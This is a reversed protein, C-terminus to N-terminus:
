ELFCTFYQLIFDDGDDTITNLTRTLSAIQAVIAKVDDDTLTLTLGVLLSHSVSPNRALRQERNLLSSLLTCDKAHQEGISTLHLLPGCDLLIQLRALRQVVTMTESDVPAVARTHNRGLINIDDHHSRLTRTGRETRHEALATAQVTRIGDILISRALSLILRQSETNTDTGTVQKLGSELALSGAVQSTLASTQHTSDLAQQQSLIFHQALITM